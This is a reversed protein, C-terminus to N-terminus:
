HYLRVAALRGAKGREYVTLAPRGAGRCTELVTRAGDDLRSCADLEIGGSRYRDAFYARLREHGQFVEGNSRQLYADAEFLALTAPLQAARLAVCYRELVDDPSRGIRLHPDQGLLSARQEVWGDASYVRARSAGNPSREFLIAVPVGPGHFQPLAAATVTATAAATAAAAADPIFRYEELRRAGGDCVHLLELLAWRPSQPWLASRAEVDLPDTAGTIPDDIQTQQRLRAGLVGPDVPGAQM